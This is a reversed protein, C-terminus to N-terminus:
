YNVGKVVLALFGIVSFIKTAQKKKNNKNARWGCVLEFLHSIIDPLAAKGKM